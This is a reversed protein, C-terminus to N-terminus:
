CIRYRELKNSSIPSVTLLGSDSGRDRNWSVPVEDQTRADSFAACIMASLEILGNDGERLLAVPGPLPFTSLVVDGERAFSELRANEGKDRGVILKASDALRFHRGIGLLIVNEMTLEGRDTLDKVKRAYVPDTLLCGGAPCPYDNIGMQEALRMQPKRSRGTIALLKSRDVVGEKEALTAPFLQASLPRLLRGVLGSEKEVIRM